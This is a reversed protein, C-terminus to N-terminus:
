FASLDVKKVGVFDSLGVSTAQNAEVRVEFLGDAAYEHTLDADYDDSSGDGWFITATMGFGFLDPANFSPLEHIVVFSQPIGSQKVYIESVPAANCTFKLTAERASYTQNEEMSLTVTSARMGKTGLVKLWTDSSSVEAEFDVNTNVEIEVTQAEYGFSVENGVVPVVMPKQGQIIKVTQVVSECTVRVCGERPEALSNGSVVIKLMTEGAAGSNTSVRIWDDGSEALWPYNANVSLEVIGGDYSVERSDPSVTLAPAEKCSVGMFLVALFAVIGTIKKM